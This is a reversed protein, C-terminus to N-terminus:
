RASDHWRLPKLLTTDFVTQADAQVRELEAQVAVADARLQAVDVGQCADPLLALWPRARLLMKSAGRYNGRTIQYYAVGVQLVARYLDRVPSDTEVWLAEFLDHQAYYEGANFKAVAERAMTPLPQACDELLRARSETDMRRALADAQPALQATLADRMLVADAGLQGAWLAAADDQALVLLPIRRAAPSVKPTYVAAAQFSADMSVVILSPNLTVLRKVYGAGYDVPVVRWAPIMAALSEASPDLGVYAMVPLSDDNLHTHREITFRATRAKYGIQPLLAV